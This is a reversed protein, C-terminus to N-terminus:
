FKTALATIFQKSLAITVTSHADIKMVEGDLQALVSEQVTFHHPKDSVLGVPKGRLAKFLRVIVRPHKDSQVARYFAKDHLRVPMRNIKAIRSGNTFVQEFIEFKHGNAEAKFTPAQWLARAVQLAERFMLLMPVNHFPGTKALSVKDLHQAAFASAGFSVYCIAFYQAVKDASKITIELPHVRLDKGQAIINKLKKNTSLGNLMYGFDNANGGWLPLIVIRKKDLSKESLVAEVVSHVTGDGGGVCLLTPTSYKALHHLLKKQYVSAKASTEIIHVKKTGYLKQLEVIRKESRKAHSSKPNQVVVIQEFKLSTNKM